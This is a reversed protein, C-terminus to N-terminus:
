KLVLFTVPYWAACSAGSPFNEVGIQFGGATAIDASSIPVTIQTSSVYQTGSRYNSAIFVLSQQTFGTGNITQTFGPKGARANPPSLSTISLPQPATNYNAYVAEENTVNLSRPNTLGALDGQWGTFEWGSATTQNFTVTTGSNYFGDGQPSPPSLAISGACSQNLTAIPLYQPILRATLSANGTPVIINHTQAGHDSWSSFAYRTAYSLPYQPSDVSISHSSGPTWASDYYPSFNKPTYWFGGDIMAGLDNPDGPTTKITTIQDPTFGAQFQPSPPKELIYTTKPNASEADYYYGFWGYFNYGSNPTATFTVRQRATYFQGSVGSVTMPAPNETLTGAGSPYVSFQLQTLEIFEANYVTVGPSTIPETTQGNGPRVTVSHSAAGNDNWRGYLYTTGDFTQAGGPV